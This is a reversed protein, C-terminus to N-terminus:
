QHVIYWYKLEMGSEKKLIKPVEEEYGEKEPVDEFDDDSEDESVCCDDGNDFEKKERIHNRWFFFSIATQLSFIKGDSKRNQEELPVVKLDYFKNKIKQLQSKLDIIRKIDEEKGGHKSLVKIM